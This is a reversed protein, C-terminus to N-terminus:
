VASPQQPSRPDTESGSNGGTRSLILKTYEAAVDSMRDVVLAPLRDFADRKIPACQVDYSWAVVVSSLLAHTIEDDIGTIEAGSAKGQEVRQALTTIRSRLLKRVGNPIDLVSGFDVWGGRPLDLRFGEILDHVPEAPKADAPQEAHGPLKLSELVDAPLGTADPEDQDSEPEAQGVVEDYSYVGPPLDGGRGVIPGYPGEVFDAYPDESM